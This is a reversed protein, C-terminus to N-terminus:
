LEDRDVHGVTVTLPEKKNSALVLWNNIEAKLYEEGVGKSVQVPHIENDIIGSNIYTWEDGQRSVIGTHGRTSTSFSLILGERLFPTMESYIEDAKERTNSIGSMSKSFIRTGVKEVLGEGNLYANRPLGNHAAIKELKERIGGQGKYQIGQNQLGRVILGYCDIDRYPTGIYPKVADALSDHHIKTGSLKQDPETMASIQRHSHAAYTNKLIVEMTETNLAVQTGPRLSTYKKNSNVPAHIIDWYTNNFDSRAQFLHSVTPKDKTITGIEIITDTLRKAPITSSASVSSHETDGNTAMSLERGWLLENNETRIGVVTSDRMKTFPKERNESSFIIDWCKGAYEPHHKLIHSVTPTEKSIRGLEIFPSSDSNKQASNETKGSQPSAKESESVSGRLVGSFEAPGTRQRTTSIILSSTGEKVDSVPMDIEKKHIKYL